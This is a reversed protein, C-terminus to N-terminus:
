MAGIADTGPEAVRDAPIFAIGQHNLRCIERSRLAELTGPLIQFHGLTEPTHGLIPNVVLERDFIRGHPILWPAAFVLEARESPRDILVSAMFAVVRQPVHEGARPFRLALLGR